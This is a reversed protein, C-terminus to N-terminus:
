ERDPFYSPSGMSFNRIPFKESTYRMGGFFTGTRSKAAALVSRMKRCVMTEMEGVIQLFWRGWRM